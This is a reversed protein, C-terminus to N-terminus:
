SRPARLMPVLPPSSGVQITGLIQFGHRQYLPINRPNSSELYAPVKDADCRQLAHRMLASGLGQGQRAPDIGILPLYWHPETPHYSGMQEFVAMLDPLIAPPANDSILATLRESDPEVGPPLWMAAGAGGDLCHVTGHAFGNGGFARVVEPMVALYRAPQPLSWRAMPDAGFALTIVGIVAAEDAPGVSRIDPNDM